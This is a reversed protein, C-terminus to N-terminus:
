QSAWEPGSAVLFRDRGSWDHLSEVEAYGLGRATAVLRAHQDMGTELFLHGGPEIRDRAAELVAELAGYGDDDAVLASRPEHERVEPPAESWERESLYPPNSVILDFRESPDIRDFWDSEVFVVRDGLSNSGANARAVELAKSSSDVGVVAAKPFVQALALAIAGSGTGLDIIRTPGPEVRERIREILQETEPRPALVRRDVELVLDHFATTGLVYQLPERAGRRRVKGRVGVLEAETMLREFQLYLQMRDLGLAHGIVLEANLRPQEIGRKDFFDSTRKVIELLTLM